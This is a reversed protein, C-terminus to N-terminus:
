SGDRLRNRRVASSEGSKTGGERWDELMGVRTGPSKTVSKRSLAAITGLEKISNDRSQQKLNKKVAMEFDGKAERALAASVRCMENFRVHITDVLIDM